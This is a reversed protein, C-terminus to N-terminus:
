WEIDEWEPINRCSCACTCSNCAVCACRAMVTECDITEGFLKAYADVSASM